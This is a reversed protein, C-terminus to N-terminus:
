GEERQKQTPPTRNKPTGCGAEKRHHSPVGRGDSKECWLAGRLFFDGWATKADRGFIRFPAGDGDWMKEGRQTEARDM